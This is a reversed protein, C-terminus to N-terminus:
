VVAVQALWGSVNDALALFPHIVLDVFFIRGPKMERAVSTLAQTIVNWPEEESIREVRLPLFNSLQHGIEDISGLAYKVRERRIIVMELM